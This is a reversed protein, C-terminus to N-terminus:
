TPESTSTAAREVQIAIRLNEEPTKGDPISINVEGKIAYSRGDPGKEYEYKVGGTSYKGASALHAQIQARVEMHRLRLKYIEKKDKLPDSVPEQSDENAVANDANIIEGRSETIHNNSVGGSKVDVIESIHPSEGSRSLALGRVSLTVKAGAQGISDVPKDSQTKIDM